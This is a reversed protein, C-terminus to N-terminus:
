NFSRPSVTITVVEQGEVKLNLQGNNSLYRLANFVQRLSLDPLLHAVHRMQCGPAHAIIEFIRDTISEGLLTQM